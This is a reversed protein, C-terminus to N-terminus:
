ALEAFLSDLESRSNRTSPESHRLLNLPPSCELVKFLQWRKLHCAAKLRENGSCSCCLIYLGVPGQLSHTDPCGKNSLCILIVMLLYELDGGALFFFFFAKKLCHWISAILIKGVHKQGLLFSAMWFLHTKPISFHHCCNRSVECRTLKLVATLDKWIWGRPVENPAKCVAHKHFRTVVCTFQM